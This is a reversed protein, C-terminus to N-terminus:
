GDEDELAALVAKARHEDLARICRKAMDMGDIEERL